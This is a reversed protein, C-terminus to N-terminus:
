EDFMKETAPLKLVWKDDRSINHKRFDEEDKYYNTSFGMKNYRDCYVMLYLPVQPKPKIRYTHYPRWMPQDGCKHWVDPSANEVRYEFRITPDTAWINILKQHVHPEPTSM